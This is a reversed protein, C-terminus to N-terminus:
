IKPSIKDVLSVVYTTIKNSICRNNQYINCVILNWVFAKTQKAFVSKNVGNIYQLFLSNCRCNVLADVLRGRTDRPTIRRNHNERHNCVDTTM